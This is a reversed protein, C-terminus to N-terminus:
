KVVVLVTDGFATGVASYVAVRCPVALEMPQPVSVEFTIRGGASAVQVLELGADADPTLITGFNTFEDGPSVARVTFLTGDPVPQGTNLVLPGSTVTFQRTAAEGTGVIPGAVFDLAIERAPMTPAITYQGFTTIPVTVTNAAADVVGGVLEWDGSTFNWRYIAFTSEDLGAVDEDKYDIVLPTPAVLTYGLPEFQHFGGVGYHPAGAPGTVDSPLLRGSAVPGDQTRFMWSFLAAGFAAPERSSDILLTATKTSKLEVPPGSPDVTGGVASLDTSFSDILADIGLQVVDFYDDTPDTIYKDKTYVELPYPRGARIAGRELYTSVKYESKMDFGLGLKIKSAKHEFKLGLPISSSRGWEKARSYSLRM